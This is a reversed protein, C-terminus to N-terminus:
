LSGLVIWSNGIAISIRLFGFVVVAFDLSFFFCSITTLLGVDDGFDHLRGESLSRSAAGHSACKLLLLGSSHRLITRIISLRHFGHFSLFIIKFYVLLLGYIFNRFKNTSFILLIIAEEEDPADILACEHVIMLLIQLRINHHVSAIVMTLIHLQRRAIIRFLLVVQVLLALEAFTVNFAILSSRMIPTRHVRLGHLNLHRVRNLILIEEVMDLVNALWTGSYHRIRFRSPFGLKKIKYLRLTTATSLARLWARLGGDNM